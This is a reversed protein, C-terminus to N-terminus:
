QVQQSEELVADEINLGKLLRHSQERDRLVDQDVQRPVRGFADGLVRM